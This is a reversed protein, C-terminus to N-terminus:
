RGCNQLLQQLWLAFSDNNPGASINTHGSHHQKM